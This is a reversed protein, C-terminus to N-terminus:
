TRGVEKFDSDRDNRNRMSVVVYADSKSFTDKSVLKEAALSILVERQTTM